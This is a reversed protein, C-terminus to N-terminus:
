RGHAVSVSAIVENPNNPDLGTATLFNHISELENYEPEIEDVEMDNEVDEGNDEEMGEAQDPKAGIQSVVIDQKEVGRAFGIVKDEMMFRDANDTM